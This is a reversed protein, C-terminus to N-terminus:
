CAYLEKQYILMIFTITQIGVNYKHPSCVSILDNNILLRKGCSDFRMRMPTLTFFPAKLCAAGTQALNSIMQELHWQLM